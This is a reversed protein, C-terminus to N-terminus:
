WLPSPHKRPPALYPDYTVSMVGEFSRGDTSATVSRVSVETINRQVGGFSGLLRILHFPVTDQLARKMEKMDADSFQHDNSESLRSYAERFDVLGFDPTKMVQERHVRRFKAM